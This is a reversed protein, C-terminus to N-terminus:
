QKKRSAIPRLHNSAVAMVTLCEASHNVGRNRGLCDILLLGNRRLAQPGSRRAVVRMPMPMADTRIASFPDERTPSTKDLPRRVNNAIEGVGICSHTVLGHCRARGTRLITLALRFFGSESM